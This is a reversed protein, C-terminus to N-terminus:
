IEKRANTESTPTIEVTFIEIKVFYAIGQIMLRVTKLTTKYSFSRKIKEIMTIEKRLIKKDCFYCFFKV